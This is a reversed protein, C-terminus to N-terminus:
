SGASVLLQGSGVALLEPVSVLGLHAGWGGRERERERERRRDTFTHQTGQLEAATMRTSGEPPGCFNVPSCAM